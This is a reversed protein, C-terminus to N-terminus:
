SANRDAPRAIVNGALAEPMAARGPGGAAVWDLIDDVVEDSLVGGFWAPRAGARQAARDPRVVVVNSFDCSDLCDAVLVRDAGVAARLRTLQGEHDVDPHKKDTGCCCGRCVTLKNV